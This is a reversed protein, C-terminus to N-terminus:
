KKHKRYKRLARYNQRLGKGMMLNTKPMTHTKEKLHYLDDVTSDFNRDLDAFEEPIHDPDTSFTIEYKDKDALSDVEFHENIDKPEPEM